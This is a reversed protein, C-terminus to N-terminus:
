ALSAAQKRLHEEGEKTLREKAGPTVLRWILLQKRLDKLFGLNMRHWTQFEGSKRTMTFFLYSIQREDPDPIAAIKVAQSVGMDLPAVWVDAELCMHEVGEVEEAYFRINDATFNGVADEDNSEFYERLYSVVGLVEKSSVTFPFRIEWVDSTPKPIVMRRTEDPVSLKGAMRAPYATSALVVIIVLLASWVASISSYNLSIGAMLAPVHMLVRSLVQGFLYGLMAGMVAFVCSEAFFLAAIHMPALGVSAYTKIESIREYVAGLMTNFVILAAILIPVLLGKVGGMSLRSRTAVRHVKVPAGPADRYGAYLALNVRGLLRQLVQRFPQLSEAASEVRGPGAAIARATGGLELNLEYPIFLVRDPEMHIYQEEEEKKASKRHVFSEVDTEGTASLALGGGGAQAGGQRYQQAVFDVPTIEEGDMDEYRFLEDSSFAGVVRLQRGLVSIRATGVEKEEIRLSEMMRTPLICVFPWDPMSRDFWEHSLYKENSIDSFYTEEPSLGLIANAVAEGEGDVRNIDIQLEETQKRNVFWSRPAVRMGQVRFFNVMDYAVFESLPGWGLGRLLVGEYPAKRPSTYALMRLPMTEFSTFSLITFTLLVLTAATLGTRVKRKRMNSIGLVFAALTASARAVDARHIMDVKQRIHEMVINFKALLYWITGIAAVLMFFGDLIIIPTRSLRFAPHVLWLVLYSIAFLVAIAVLKKRIEVYNILLREAFLVFPLLLAFYFIVGEVVDTKTDRIDPYVRNELGWGVRVHDYFEDYKRAQLAREAEQIRAGAQDFLDWVRRKYIGSERLREMRMGDLKHMDQVVQFGTRLIFNESKDAKYGIGTPEERSERESLEEEGAFNLLLGEYGVASAALFFKVYKDRETFFVACPENSVFSVVYEFESNSDGRRAASQALTMLSLPDVLDYVTTCVARFFNLRVDTEREAWDAERERDSAAVVRDSQAIKTVVGSTPSLLCGHVLFKQDKELGFVEFLGQVNSLQIDHTSVGMMSKGKSPNDPALMDIAAVASAIPVKPMMPLLNLEIAFGFISGAKRNKWLEDRQIPLVPADATQKVLYTCAVAQRKVNDLYPELRDFTDLPTNVSNRPDGTTALTIGPYGCMSIVESDFAVLDPVLSRWDRGQQPVIGSQYSLTEAPGGRGTIRDVWEVLMASYESYARQLEVETNDWSITLQNYFHGKYFSGLSNHRGSLDLGIFFYPEGTGEGADKDPGARRPYITKFAYDRAGSLAQFHGPAAIFKVKRRPPHKALFEAIELLTAVGSASEAGPSLAPVVSVSDYYAFVVLAQDGLQPDTGPIEASVRVADMEEWRMLAKVNVQVPQDDARGLGSLAELATEVTFDQEQKGTVAAALAPAEQRRLYYRPVPVPMESYKQEADARFPHETELFIIARAGLSAVTQWRAASNFDLLVVSDEVRKGNLDELYGDGAWVLQGTVGDESTMATRIYNPLICYLPIERGGVTLAADHDPRPGREGEPIKKGWREDDPVIPVVVQFPSESVNALGLERFQRAIYKGAEVCGPYGTYRSPHSSLVRIHESPDVARLDRGLEDAVGGADAALVPAAAWCLLLLWLHSKMRGVGHRESEIM